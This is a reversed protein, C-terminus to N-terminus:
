MQYLYSRTRTKWATLGQNFTCKKEHKICRMRKNFTLGMFSLSWFTKDQTRVAQAPCRGSNWFLVTFSILAVSLLASAFKLIRPWVVIHPSQLTPLEVRYDMAAEGDAPENRKEPPASQVPTFDPRFYNLHFSGARPCSPGTVENIFLCTVDELLPIKLLLLFTRPRHIIWHTESQLWCLDLWCNTEETWCASEASSAIYGLLKHPGDKSWNSWTTSRQRSGSSLTPSQSRNGFM